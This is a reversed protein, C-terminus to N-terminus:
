VNKVKGFRAGVRDRGLTTAPIGRASLRNSSATQEAGACGKDRFGVVM